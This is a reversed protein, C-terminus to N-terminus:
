ILYDFMMHGQCRNIIGLFALQVHFRRWTTKQSIRTRRTWDHSICSTFLHFMAPRQDQGVTADIFEIRLVDIKRKIYLNFVGDIAITEILMYNWKLFLTPLLTIFNKTKSIYIPQRYVVPMIETVVSWDGRKVFFLIFELHIM